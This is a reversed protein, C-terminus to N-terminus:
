SFFVRKKRETESHSSKELKTMFLVRKNKLLLKIWISKLKVWGFVLKWWNWNSSFKTQLNFWIECLHDVDVLTLCSFIFLSHRFLKQSYNQFEPWLTKNPMDARFMFQEIVHVMHLLTLLDWPTNLWSYIEDSRLSDHWSDFLIFIM